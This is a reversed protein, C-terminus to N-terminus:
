ASERKGRARRGPVKLLGTERRVIEPTLVLNRDGQYDPLDFLADLMIDELIARVGRVGTGKEIARRAIEKLAADTVTLRADEMEFFKQYQRIIANKPETLIRTM